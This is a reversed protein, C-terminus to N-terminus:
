RYCQSSRHRLCLGGSEQAETKEGVLVFLCAVHHPASVPVSFVTVTGMFLLLRLIIWSFRSTPSTPSCATTHTLQSVKCKAFSDVCSSVSNNNQKCLGQADMLALVRSKGM